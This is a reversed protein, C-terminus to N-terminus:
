SFQVFFSVEWMSLLLLMKGQREKEELGDKIYIDIM